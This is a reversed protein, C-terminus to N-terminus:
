PARLAHLHCFFRRHTNVLYVPEELVVIPRAQIGSVGLFSMHTHACGTKSSTFSGSRVMGFGLRRRCYLMSALPCAHTHVGTCEFAAARSVSLAAQGPAPQVACLIGPPQLGHGGPVVQGRLGPPVRARM